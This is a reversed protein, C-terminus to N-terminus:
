FYIYNGMACQTESKNMSATTDCQFIDVRGIVARHCLEHCPQLRRRLRQHDYFSASHITENQSVAEENKSGQNDFGKIM